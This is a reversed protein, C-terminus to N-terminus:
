DESDELDLLEQDELVAVELVVVEVEQDMMTVVAEV